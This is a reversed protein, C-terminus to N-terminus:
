AWSNYSRARGAQDSLSINWPGGIWTNPRDCKLSVQFITKDSAPAVNELV